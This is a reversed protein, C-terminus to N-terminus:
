FRRRVTVLRRSLEIRVPRFLNGFRGCGLRGNGLRRSRGRRCGFRGRGRHAGVLEVFLTHAQVLLLFLTRRSRIKFLRRSQPVGFGRMHDPILGVLADAPDRFILRFRHLIELLRCALTPRARFVPQATAVVVARPDLLIEGLRELPIFFRRRVAVLRRLAFKQVRVACGSHLRLVDAVFDRLSFAHFLFQSRRSDAASKATM